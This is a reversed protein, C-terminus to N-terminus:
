GKKVKQRRRPLDRPLKCCPRGSGARHVGAQRGAGLGSEDDTCGAHDCIDGFDGRTDSNIRSIDTRSWFMNSTDSYRLRAFICRWIEFRVLFKTTVEKQALSPELPCFTRDSYSQRRRRSSCAAARAWFLYSERRCIDRLRGKASSANHRKIRYLTRACAQACACLVRMCV